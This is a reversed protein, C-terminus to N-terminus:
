WFLLPLLQRCYVCNNAHTKAGGAEGKRLFFDVVPGVDGFDEFFEGDTLSFCDLIPFAKGQKGM